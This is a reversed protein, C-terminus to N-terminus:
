YTNVSGIGKCLFIAMLAVLLCSSYELCSERIGGINEGSVMWARGEGSGRTQLNTVGV